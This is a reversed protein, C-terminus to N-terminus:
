TATSSGRRTSPWSARGGDPAGSRLRAGLRPTGERPPPAEPGTGGRAGHLHVRPRRGRRLRLDRLRAPASGKARAEGRLPPPEPVRRGHTSGRVSRSPWGCSSSATTPRSSRVWGARASSGERDLYRNPSSGHGARPRPLGPATAARVPTGCRRRNPRSLASLDHRSAAVMRRAVEPADLGASVWARKVAALASGITAACVFDSGRLPCRALHQLKVLSASRGGPGGRFRRRGAGSGAQTPRVASSWRRSAASSFATAPRAADHEHGPSGPM